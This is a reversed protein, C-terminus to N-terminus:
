GEGGDFADLAADFAEVDDALVRVAADSFLPANCHHSYTLRWERAAEVVRLAREHADALAEVEARFAEMAAPNHHAIFEADGEARLNMPRGDHESGNYMWEMTFPEDNVSRYGAEWPGPTAGESAKRSAEVAARIRELREM